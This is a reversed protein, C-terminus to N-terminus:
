LVRRMREEKVVDDQNGAARTTDVSLVRRIATSISAADLSTRQELRLNDGSTITGRFAEVLGDMREAAAAPAVMDVRRLVEIERIGVELDARRTTAPQNKADVNVLAHGFDRIAPANM